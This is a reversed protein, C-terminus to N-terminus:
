KTSVGSVHTDREAARTCSEDERCACRRRGGAPQQRRQPLRMEKPRGRVRASQTYGGAGAPPRTRAHMVNARAIAIVCECVIKTDKLM